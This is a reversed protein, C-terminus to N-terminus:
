REGEQQARKLVTELKKEVAAPYELVALAGKWFGAHRDIERQDVASGNTLRKTLNTMYFDRREETLARLEAWEPYETLKQLRASREALFALEDHDVPKAM